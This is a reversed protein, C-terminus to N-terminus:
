GDNRSDEGRRRIERIADVSDKGGTWWPAIGTIEEITVRESEAVKEFDEVQIRVPQGNSNRHLLGWVRVREGFNDKLRELLERDVRGRVARRTAVDRLSIEPARRVSLVDLVGEVSGLATSQVTAAAEANVRVAPRLKARRERGNIAAFNIGAVGEKGLNDCLKRVASLSDPTFSPPIVAETELVRVGEVLDTIPALIQQGVPAFAVCLSSTTLEVVAWKTQRAEEGRAARDLERLLNLTRRAISFFADASIEGVQGDVKVSLRSEPVAQKREAQQATM